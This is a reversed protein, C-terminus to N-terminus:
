VLRYMKGPASQIIHQMELSLIAAALASSSLGTQQQISDIPVQGLNNILDTIAKEENTLQVFLSIQPKPNKVPQDDWGLLNIIDAAEQILVAKNNKILKNCGASKADITKGPFAFVDKNYGNALEATVMSGGKEGSEIVIVADCMGAVIRNRTPFHHKDPPQNSGFETLLGGGAHVMEKALSRHQPPYITDLGHALVGVTPLGKKLANKHALADIGFALGSVVLIQQSSLDTILSETLQKGYDSHHRTGIVSVIKQSNLDAAGKYFLLTPPDYCNLLRKPYEPDNIFLPQISHKTLFGVENEAEIFNKYSKISRARVEGIGNIRELDTKKSHFIAKASGLEEILQRAQVCGVQPVKTLAIQYLLDDTYNTKM